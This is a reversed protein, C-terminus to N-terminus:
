GNTLVEIYNLDATERIWGDVSRAFHTAITRKGRLRRFAYVPSGGYVGVTWVRYTVGDELGKLMVFGHVRILSGARLRTAQM